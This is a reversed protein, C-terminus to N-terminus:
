GLKRNGEVDRLGVMVAGHQGRQDSSGEALRFGLKRGRPQAKENPSRYM